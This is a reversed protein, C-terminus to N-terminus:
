GTEGDSDQLGHPTQGGWAFALLRILSPSDAKLKLRLTYKEPTEVTAVNALPVKLLQAKPHDRQPELNWKAVAADFESGDHFTVGKRLKFALTKPAPQQWSEALDGVVKHEWTKPDVLEFRVLGNFLAEYGAMEPESTLHPDLSAYTWQKSAILQGGRKIAQALTSPPACVALALGGSAIAAARIFKRRSMRRVNGKQSMVWRGKISNHSAPSLSLGGTDPGDRSTL